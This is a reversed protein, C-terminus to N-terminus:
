RCVVPGVRQIGQPKALSFEAQCPPGGDAPIVSLRNHQQVPDIYTMGDWGVYSQQHGGVVAVQSGNALPKGQEDVLEVDAASIPQIPFE